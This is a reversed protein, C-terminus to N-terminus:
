FKLRMVIQLARPGGAQFMPALGTAPTGTGLMLNLMSVPQGFLPSALYAVPDALNPHNLVNFMEMRSQLKLKETLRFERRVALDFQHMGFGAIANRGLNGQLLEGRSQFAAPNLRGNLWVAQGPVLDPRFVNAFTVGMAYEANLVTIPFGTRARFIGDLSWKRWTYTGSMNFSHRVDFDSSGKDLWAPLGRGVWHFASDASATDISHSWSWAINGQLAESFRRRYQAQLAHYSSSGHNTATAAQVLNPGERGGIERRLLKIGSAGVYGVSVVDKQSLGRELTANWERVLPLRLNPDLRYTLLSRGSGSVDPAPSAFQWLLQTSAGNLLDNALAMSSDYFLGGGARLLTKGSKDLRWAVGLRPALNTYRLKWAEQPTPPTLPGGPDTVDRLPAASIPAPNLEWRMGYSVTVRQSMRWTDQFFLSVEHLRAGNSGVPTVTVWLSRKALLDALSDSLVSFYTQSQLREPTLRRYDGGVRLQHSGLIWTATNSINWQRQRHDSESGNLVQGLGAISFRYFGRCPIVSQFQSLALDSL